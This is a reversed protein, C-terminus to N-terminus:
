YTSFCTLMSLLYVLIDQIDLIWAHLGPYVLIDQIDLIWAHLGPYVLIDQIDLIWAIDMCTPSQSNPSNSFKWLM